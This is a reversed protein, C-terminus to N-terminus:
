HRHAILRMKQDFVGLAGSHDGTREPGGAYIWVEGGSMTVRRPLSTVSIPHTAEPGAFLGAEQQSDAPIVELDLLEATSAEVLVRRCLHGEFGCVYSGTFVRMDISEDARITLTRLLRLEGTM